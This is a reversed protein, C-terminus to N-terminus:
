SVPNSPCCVSGFLLLSAWDVGWSVHKERVWYILVPNPLCFQVDSSPIMWVTQWAGSFCYTTSCWRSSWVSECSLYQKVLASVFSELWCGAHPCKKAHSIFSQLVTRLTCPCGFTSFRLLLNARLYLMGTGHIAPWKVPFRLLRVLWIACTVNWRIPWIWIVPTKRDM